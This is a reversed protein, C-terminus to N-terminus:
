PQLLIQYFHANGSINTVICQYPNGDGSNTNIPTWHAGILAPSSQLIYTKGPATLWDIAVGRAGGASLGASSFQLRSLANTPNTGALYEQWNLAGDGDADVDDGAQSNTLSGFFAMKWEDSTISAPQQAPTMVWVYGPHSDMQYDITFDPAGDVGSFHLAYCAGPYAGPPVTFTITGLYNSHQLATGFAGFSWAQVKDNGSLGPLVLPAPVGGAPNFQISSVAPTGSSGTVIARFQMGALSYGPLVNVYVPLSYANGPLADIITGSGVSAERFWVLGPPSNTVFLSAPGSVVSEVLADLSLPVPPQGAIWNTFLSHSRFASDGNTWFRLYNNTDMGLYISVGVSRGLITQWDNFGIVGDGGHGASDPPYADMDNFADSDSPPLRIGASAYIANNVDANDLGVEIAGDLTGKIGFQGANYGTSPSSDGVMDPTYAINLTQQPLSVLGVNAQQGDSTGSPDLVNLSYSQGYTATNPIEVHLLVAVGSSQMNMGAGGEATIVSGETTDITYSYNTFNVPTDGPAPGPLPVFDNTTLPRLTIPAIMNTNPPVPTIEVRFQLSELATDSQLDVVVPIYLHAGPGASLPQPFGVSNTPSYGGRLLTGNTGVTALLQLASLSQQPDCWLISGVNTGVGLSTTLLLEQSNTTPTSGDTTYYVAPVSSTVYITVCNPFYGNSPSISLTPPPVYPTNFILASGTATGGSNYAMAQFYYITGSQLNSIASSVNTASGLNNTLDIPTTSNGYNSTTGWQFFVETPSNEPNVTANLTAGAITVGTAPLTVVVASSGPTVATLDGGYSLGVGNFAVLQFHYDTDPVLDVLIASVSQPGTGNNILLNTTTYNGYSTTLGWEFYYSASEDDLVVTGNLTANSATLGTAALTDAVPAAAPTIATLGGGSSSGGGNYAVAQYYYISGAQLNVLTSSVNTTDNLNGSLNIPTTSNGYNVTTGWQFYVETPSNEPDVTANLTASTATIGTAPMTVVLAPQAPIFVTFYSTSASVGLGNYAVLLFDYTTAPLLNSVTASVNVINTLNSTLLNTATFNTLNNATGWQFYYFAAEGGANLTGNLTANSASVSTAALTTTIPLTANLNVPTFTVNTVERILSYYLETVFLTGGPAIAVSVPERGAASNSTIGAAGDVWGAYLSPECSCCTVPWVNSATGYLTTTNSYIDIVRLRNNMEDCVILSGDGSAALGYPQDFMAFAPAGDDYGAGNHGTVLHPGTNSTYDNTSVAWIANNLTDSVALQGNALLALGSPRWAFSTVIYHVQASAGLVYNNSYLTPPPNSDLLPFRLIVGNTFALFVNSNADVAMASPLAGAPTNTLFLASVVNLNASQVTLSCKYVRPPSPLLLYLNNAPDVAVSTINTFFHYNTLIHKSTGSTAYYETTFSSAKNGAQSVQELDNNNKDAIWLNGNADLACSIPGNFQATDYTSGGAFGSSPGCEVRVGGGITDVSVQAAACLCTALWGLGALAAGLGRWRRASGAQRKEIPNM